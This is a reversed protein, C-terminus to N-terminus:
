EEFKMEPPLKKFGRTMIALYIIGIVLWVSGVIKSNSDLNFWLIMTIIAGVFPLIVYKVTQMGNRMKGRIYYHSFVSLNVLTFGLLAGFNILSAATALSMVLSLLGLAGIIFISNIPTKYKPHVTSFFKPLVGDRGMGFLIRSASSQSSIASAFAGIAYAFIFFYGLVSGAIKFILEQAGTDVSEFENWGTPWALQAIYAVLIFMLGAGICIIMIARSLNKEPEHAEEAVTTVADFGLFSLCLISAGALILSFGQGDLQIQTANYIASWDVLTGAGGGGAIYKIAVVLFTLVFAFQILVLTNNAFATVQIGFINIVTVLALYALIIAWTPIMPFVANLFLAALLYNIMPLLMYDVLIAWGSLFGIYPNIGRQVYSYASGAIPYAKVMQGYSYATFAMGVTAVIYAAALMGHTINSVLGLTSFVTVPCVFALGYFLVSSFPLVRKLSQDYGFREVGAEAQTPKSM